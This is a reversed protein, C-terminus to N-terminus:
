LTVLDLPKQTHSVSRSFWSLEKKEEHRNCESTTQVSASLVERPQLSSNSRCRKGRLQTGQCSGTTCVSFFNINKWLCNKFFPLLLFPFIIKLSWCKIQLQDWAQRRSFGRHTVAGQAWPAFFSSFSWICSLYKHVCFWISKWSITHRTRTSALMFSYPDLSCPSPIDGLSLEQRATSMALVATAMAPTQQDMSGDGRQALTPHSLSRFIVLFGARHLSPFPHHQHLIWGPGQPGLLRPVAVAGFCM